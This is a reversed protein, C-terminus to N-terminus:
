GDYQEDDSFIWDCLGSEDADDNGVDAAPYLNGFSGSRM